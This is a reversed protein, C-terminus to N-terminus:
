AASRGAISLFTCQSVAEQDDVEVAAATKDQLCDPLDSAVCVTSTSGIDLFRGVELRQRAPQGLKGCFKELWFHENL